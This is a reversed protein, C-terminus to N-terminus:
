AERTDTIVTPLDGATPLQSHAQKLAERLAGAIGAGSEIQEATRAAERDLPTSNLGLLQSLQASARLVERLLAATDRHNVNPDELSTWARAFVADIRARELAVLETAPERVVSTMARSLDARVVAESSYNLEAAIEAFSAGRLKMTLAKGRREAVWPNRGRPM